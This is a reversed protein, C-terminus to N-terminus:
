RGGVRRTQWKDHHAPRPLSKESELGGDGAVDGNRPSQLVVMSLTRQGATLKESGGVAKLM